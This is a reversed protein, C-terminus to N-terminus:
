GKEQEGAEEKLNGSITKSSTTLIALAQEVKDAGGARWKEYANNVSLQFTSAVMPWTNRGIATKQAKLYADSYARRADIYVAQNDLYDRYLQTELKQDTVEGTDPDPAKAFQYLVACADAIQQESIPNPLTTPINLENM